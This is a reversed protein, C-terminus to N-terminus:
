IGINVTFAASGWYIDSSSVADLWIFKGLVFKESSSHPRYVLIDGVNNIYYKMYSDYNGFDYGCNDNLINGFANPMYNPINFNISSINDIFIDGYKYGLTEASKSLGLVRYLYRSSDNNDAFSCNTISIFLIIFIFYKKM